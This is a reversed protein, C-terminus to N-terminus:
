KSVRSNRLCAFAHEVELGPVQIDGKYSINNLIPIENPESWTVETLVERILRSLVAVRGGVSEM